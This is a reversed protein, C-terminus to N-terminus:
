IDVYYAPDLRIGDKVITLHLHAGTANGSKGVLAVTQGCSVSDGKKVMLKSCHAYFTSVNNAHDIMFYLGYEKSEGIYRVVGDAFALIESGKPAAIDLALHFENKGNIPNKRYGFGSTLEGAVPIVTQDLGLEYYQFSVNSPLAKGDSGYAQAMATVVEPTPTPAPESVVPHQVLLESVKPVEKMVGYEAAYDLGFHKTELLPTVYVAPTESPVSVSGEVPESGLLSAGLEKFVDSMNDQRNVANAFSQFVTRFNIDVDMAYRLSDITERGANRGIFVALFLLVSVTLQGIRRLDKNPNEKGRVAAQHTRKLRKARRKKVEINM